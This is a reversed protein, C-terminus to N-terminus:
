GFKFLDEKGDGFMLYEDADPFFTALPAHGDQVFFGNEVLFGAVHKANDAATVAEDIVALREVHGVLAAAGNERFGLWAFPRRAAPLM